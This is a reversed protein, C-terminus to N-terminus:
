AERRRQLLQQFDASRERMREAVEPSGAGALTYAYGCGLQAYLREVDWDLMAWARVGASFLDTLVGAVADPDAAERLLGAAHAARMRNLFVPHNLRTPDRGGHARDWTLRFLARYFPQDSGYFNMGLRLSDFHEEILDASAVAARQQAWRVEDMALIAAVVGSKSGFLAYPRRLSVRARASLARMPLEFDGTECIIQRAAEVIRARQEVDAPDAPEAASPEHPPLTV